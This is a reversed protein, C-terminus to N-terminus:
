NYFPLGFAELLARSDRDNRASTVFVIDMGLIDTIKDYKIEPFIYYEKVGMSYNGHGDFSKGSLGRFDRIRPMAINILRELFEYMRNNRLTVKAGLNMGERIKFGAISKRAKTVVPRQGSIDGLGEVVSELINKEQMKKELGMNVVIKELRPVAHQNDVGLVKMLDSRIKTEYLSRIRPKSHAKEM